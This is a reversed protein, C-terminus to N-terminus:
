IAKQRRQRLYNSIKVTFESICPAVRSSFEPYPIGGGEGDPGRIAVPLPSLLLLYHFHYQSFASVLDRKDM